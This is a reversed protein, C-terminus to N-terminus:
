KVMAGGDHTERTGAYGLAFDSGPMHPFGRFNAANGFRARCTSFAKDCGAVLRVRAGPAVAFPPARWLRLSAEQHAAIEVTTGANAGDLFTLTGHAFRHRPQGAVAACELALGEVGDVVAELTHPALDVGCREDGLRADCTRAFRRMDTRQLEHAIGRLEATFAGDARTIEGLTARRDLEAAAPDTWDVDYIEVEADDYRGAAIDAEDLADSSLAGAVEQADAGLGLTARAQSADLAAVAECRM